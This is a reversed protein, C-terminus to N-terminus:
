RGGRDAAARRTGPRACEGEADAVRVTRRCGAGPFQAFGGGVCAGQCCEGVLEVVPEGKLAGADAGEGQPRLVQDGGFQGRMLQGEIRDVLFGAADLGGGVAGPVPEAGPRHM